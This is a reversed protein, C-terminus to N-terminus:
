SPKSLMSFLCNTGWCPLSSMNFFHEFGGVPAKNGDSCSTVLILSTLCVNDLVDSSVNHEVSELKKM